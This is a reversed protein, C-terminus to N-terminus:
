PKKEIHFAKFCNREKMLWLFVDCKTCKIRSRGTCQEMKCCQGLGDLHQPWRHVGDYRVDPIPRIAPVSRKEPPAGGQFDPSASTRPRGPRRNVEEKMLTEAVISRFQLCDYIKRPSTGIQQQKERYELCSNALALDVLHFIIRLPWKKTKAHIRYLAILFDLKDVGGMLEQILPFGTFYIFLSHIIYM